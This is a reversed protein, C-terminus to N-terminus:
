DFMMNMYPVLDRLYRNVNLPKSMGFPSVKGQLSFLPSQVQLSIRAKKARTKEVIENILILQADSSTGLCEKIYLRGKNESYFAYASGRDGEYLAIHDGYVFADEIIFSIYKENWSIHPIELLAEERVEFIRNHPVKDVIVEADPKPINDLMGQKIKVTRLNFDTSYGRKKYYEILFRDGPVLVSLQKGDERAMNESNELLYTMIGKNQYKKLTAAGLIYVAEVSVDKFVFTTDLMLLMYVVVGNEEYVIANSPKAVRDFIFDIYNIPDDFSSDWIRKLAPIDYATATRIM